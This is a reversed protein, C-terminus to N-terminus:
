EGYIKGGNHSTIEIDHIVIDGEGDLMIRFSDCKKFRIPVRCVLFGSKGSIEACSEFDGNDFAISARVTTGAKLEMRLWMCSLGKHETEDYTFRKSVTCWSFSEDGGDLKWMDGDATGYVSGNYTCFAEFPTDDERVWIDTEPTYVLVDCNGNKDRAAAYYYRGDTGAACSTYQKNLQPSIDYPEGGSYAFFGNQSLYYLVGGTECISKGDICGGFTQKPMSFNTPSDGYIHHIYNRKFAVVATRYSCIGTFEGGTAVSAYWSDSALGQFSNFNMCDGLKSAYVYEGSTGAGWLRNNHVCIHEMDPISIKLTVSGSESANKFGIKKGNKDYLLLNLKTATVSDVIASVIAGDPAYSHRTDIVKTNNEEAQCGSIVISDGISFRQNFSAGSASIYASYEGTMENVSSRFSANQVTVTKEMSKLEDNTGSITYDYYVKDPFICIKGNFDAISKEGESLQGSIRTGKYYFYRDCVGTFSNLEGGTYEPTCIQATGSVEAIHKRPERATLAPIAKPSMNTMDSLASDSVKDRRDLGSFVKLMAKSNEKAYLKPLIM